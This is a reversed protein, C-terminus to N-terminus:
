EFVDECIGGGTSRVRAGGLRCLVGERDEREFRDVWKMVDPVARTLVVTDVKYLGVITLVINVLLVNLHVSAAPDSLM